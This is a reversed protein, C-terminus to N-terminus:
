RSQWYGQGKKSRYWAIGGHLKKFAALVRPDIGLNFRETEYVFEQGFENAIFRAIDAQDLFGTAQFQKWMWKAVDDVNSRGLVHPDIEKAQYIADVPMLDAKAVTKAKKEGEEIIVWLKKGQQYGKLYFRRTPDGNEYVIEYCRGSYMKKPRRSKAV